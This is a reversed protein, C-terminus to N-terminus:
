HLLWDLLIILVEQSCPKGNEIRSLTAPSLGLITAAERVGIRQNDRWGKIVEGLRV